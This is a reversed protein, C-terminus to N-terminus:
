RKNNWKWIFNYAQKRKGNCCSSINGISLNLERKIDSMSDWQKILEGNLNYQYVKKSSKHYKGRKMILGKKRIILGNKYAHEMNQIRSCWELNDINNNLKNGDKHNVEKYQNPNPIFAIAVLRHLRYNKPKKNKYLTITYYKIKNSCFPNLIKSKRKVKKINNKLNANIYREVNKINGYNSVQYLGEYGKIDKWIEM